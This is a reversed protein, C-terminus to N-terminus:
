ILQEKLCPVPFQPLAQGGGSRQHPAYVLINAM